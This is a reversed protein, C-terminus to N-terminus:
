YTSGVRSFTLRECSKIESQHLLIDKHTTFANMESWFIFVVGTEVHLVYSQCHYLKFGSIKIQVISSQPPAITKHVHKVVQFGRKTLSPCLDKIGIFVFFIPIFRTKSFCDSIRTIIVPPFLKGDFLVSIEAYLTAQASHLQLPKFSEESCAKQRKSALRLSQLYKRSFFGAHCVSLSLVM